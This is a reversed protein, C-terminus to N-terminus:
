SHAAFWDPWPTPDLDREAQAVIQETMWTRLAVVEPSSALTLLRDERCLEDARSVVAHLQKVVDSFERPIAMEVDVHSLGEARAREATRRGTLRAHAPSHLLESIENATAQATPNNRDAALLQLERVLEDLHADQRLSLAVPCQALRILVWGPPLAAANPDMGTGPATTSASAPPRIDYVADPDLLDAWIKKGRATTTVGWDASLMSVIALGRGTTAEDELDSGAPSPEVPAVVEPPLLGDDEVLVRVGPPRTEITVSMFRADAHLAANGSLESVVLEATDTLEHLGWSTLGDVVFRRAGPVGAPDAALRVSLRRVPQSDPMSRCLVRLLAM